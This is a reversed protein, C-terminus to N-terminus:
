DSPFNEGGAEIRRTSDELRTGKHPLVKFLGAKSNVEIFIQERPPSSFEKLRKRQHDILSALLQGLAAGVGKEHHIDAGTLPCVLAFNEKPMLAWVNSAALLRTLARFTFNFVVHIYYFILTPV